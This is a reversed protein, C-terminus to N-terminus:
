GKLLRLIQERREPDPHKRAERGATKLLRSRARADAGRQLLCRVRAPSGCSVALLLPTMGMRDRANVNAGAALLVEVAETADGYSYGAAFRCASMAEIGDPLEPMEIGFRERAVTRIDTGRIREMATHMPFAEPASAYFLATRGQRDRAELPARAKLLVRLADAAGAEAASMLATLGDRTAARVDAGAALLAEVQAAAGARAAGTLPAGGGDAEPPNVSAGAELLAQTADPDRQSALATDGIEDRRQVDAGHALLLRVGDASRAFMLPTCGDVDQANPDAGADLLLRMAELQDAGTAAHLPTDGTSTIDVTAGLELVARIMELDGGEAVDKLVSSGTGDVHNLDAGAGVLLHLVELTAAFNVASSSVHNVAHLDSGRALLVAVCAVAGNEAAAMLSTEGFEDAAKVDVGEEILWAVCRASDNLAACTLNTESCRGRDALVAGARLLAEAKAVDGVALTLLWPTREWWDRAALDAGRRLLDTVEELSGLAVARHLPSWGLQGADAGAELLLRITEFRGLRSAVRLPSEGYSTVGSPHAGADLLMRVVQLGEDRRRLNSHYVATVIAGYGQSSQYAADAGADLLGRVWEPRLSGAAVALPTKELMSAVANPDAGSEILLHLMETGARADGAAIILPTRDEGDRADPPVGRKLQRAVCELDGRAAAYCIQTSQM